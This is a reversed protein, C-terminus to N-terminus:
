AAVRRTYIFWEVMLMGLAFAALWWWWEVRGATAADVTAEASGGPPTASPRIDSETPDLLNVALREFGPIPPDTAYLGVAPLPLTFDGSAPVAVRREGSPGILNISNLNPGARELNARPVAPNDGPKFSPRVDLESGVAMFQVLNHMFVPFTPELPWNSPLIDFTVLHLRPGDRYLVALPGKTGEIMVSAELPVALQPMELTFLKRLNLGLLIPHDRDWDLVGQEDFFMPLGDATGDSTVQRLDGGPPLGGFFVFQGAEPLNAPSHRDFFVVDYDVPLQADYEAPSMFGPEEVNLANMIRELFYNGESVLLVKLPRPPPVFVYAVDDAGLVDGEVGLVEVRITAATTLDLAFEVGDRSVVGAEAQTRRQEETLRTPLLTVGDDLERTTWEDALPDAEDLLAVSLRVTPEVTEPGFNALRAFVQVQTPRDFNRRASLAVIAVNPSDDQGLQEHTLIGKLSVEDADAANGDSFLFVSPPDHEPRLQDPDNNTPADALNYAEAIQTPRDSETVADVAARLAAQDTTSQQVVRTEGAFAIVTASDGRTMTDILANAREKAVDLRTRGEPGDTAAMSASRDLLIVSQDGATVASDSVPRAFALILLLLLFLQLFLLLNRRLKQFPSNVQLDQVAKKWLLTSGVYAPQRRLKLFYLLLLLPVAILAAYLANIPNLLNPLM